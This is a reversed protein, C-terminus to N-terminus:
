GKRDKLLIFIGPVAENDPLNLLQEDGHKPLFATGPPTHRYVPHMPLM